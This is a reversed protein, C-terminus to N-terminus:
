PRAGRYFRMASHGFLPDNILVTGNADAIGFGLTRWRPSALTSAYEVRCLAGAEARFRITVTGDAQESFQLRSLAPPRYGLPNSPPSEVGIANYAVVFFIYYSGAELNTLTASYAPGVDLRNPLLSDALRYYLAYGTVAADPSAGWVLKVPAASMPGAVATTTNFKALTILLGAVLLVRFWITKKM